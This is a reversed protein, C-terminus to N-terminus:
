ISKKKRILNAEEKKNNFYFCYFCYIFLYNTLASKFLHIFWYIFSYIFLYVLLYIFLYIFWNTILDIFWYTSSDTNAHM